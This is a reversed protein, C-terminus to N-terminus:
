KSHSALWENYDVGDPRDVVERLKYEPYAVCGLITTELYQKPSPDEAPYGRSGPALDSGGSTESEKAANPDRGGRRTARRFFRILLNM